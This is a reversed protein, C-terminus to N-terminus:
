VVVAGGHGANAAGRGKGARVGWGVATQLSACMQLITCVSTLPCKDACGAPVVADKPNVPSLKLTDPHFTIYDNPLQDLQLPVGVPVDATAYYNNPQLGRITWSDALRGQMTTQLFTFPLASICAIPTLEHLTQRQGICAHVTHQSDAPLTQAALM